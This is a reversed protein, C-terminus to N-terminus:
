PHTAIVPSGAPVTHEAFASQTSLSQRVLHQTAVKFSALQPTHLSVPNQSDHAAPNVHCAPCPHTATLPSGAPVTHEAFLSQVSLSQLPLHQTLVNFSALQAVHPAAPKQSVQAV